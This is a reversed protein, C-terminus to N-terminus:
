GADGGAGDDAAARRARSKMTRERRPAAALPGVEGQFMRRLDVTSRDGLADFHADLWRDCAMRGIGFLREFFVFDTNMDSQVDLALLSPDDSITHVLVKRYRVADLRGEDLLRAVFEIARLERLLAANFTIENVRATIDRARRPAGPREIPNIQVIVIDATDPTEFLPFLAPNGMYGGDWYPEGEIEVAQFLLPLCASAMVHDATIESNTFVRVRGTEVNTASIFLRVAKCARVRDFDVLDSLVEKLPNVNLPNFEYPSAVRTLMDFWLALPNVLAVSAWAPAWQGLLAELPTRRFPNARGADAVGTWFRRLAARAGERGGEELGEVLVVANMAGASAGSVAVIEIRDDELLRDVVGWTYAGLAGGGQLALNIKKAGRRAM